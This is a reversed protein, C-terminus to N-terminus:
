NKASQIDMQFQLVTPSSPTGRLCLRPWAGSVMSYHSAFHLIHSVLKLLLNRFWVVFVTYIEGGGWGLTRSKHTFFAWFPSVLIASLWLITKASVWKNFRKATWNEPVFEWKTIIEAGPCGLTRATSSPFHDPGHYRQNAHPSLPLRRVVQSLKNLPMSRFYANYAATVASPNLLSRQNQHATMGWLRSGAHQLVMSHGSSVRFVRM